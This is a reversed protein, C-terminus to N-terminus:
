DEDKPTNANPLPANEGSQQLTIPRRVGKDESWANKAADSMPPLGSTKRFYEEDELQPTVSGARVAVGYADTMEKLNESKGGGNENNEDDPNESKPAPAAKPEATTETSLGLQELLMEEEALEFANDEFDVGEDACERNRSSFKNAVRLAAAQVAKTEDVQAWRRGQFVPKNFKDFKSLPLPIAGTILSMELFSEFIPREATEIDFEQLLMSMENTDLRGLRGASFNINELDNFLVNYDAGPMGASQSRGASKRFQEVNSNPHTPDVAQYKVGWPLAHTEGPTLSQRPLGTKPDIPVGGNGGEPLIDSYLFGVKCASERWAIVEAIMAQDLQRSAPITSAVWPAPRTGEADVARAYHIIEEANVRQHVAGSAFNFAGPISFQWDMPQRKIFYFAVPRGIGWSSMQYEIGMIVVNGNPLITNYFRDCWEASILQLSYGFKNVGPTKIHRVFIDGDRVANSLRLQRLTNYNRRQRVDCYGARQWEKWRAEVLTNAYVDPSGVKVMAEGRLVDDFRTRDLRDALTFARYCEIETGTKKEAWQRVRNIRDEHKMLCAKEDASYVVRDAQEQIKMRLMIGKAGFVNSWLMERYKVFTPNTKFLDRVRSTLLWVNQWVDSDEGLMSISWDQNQGGVATVERYGRTELLASSKTARSKKRIPSSPKRLAVTKVTNKM